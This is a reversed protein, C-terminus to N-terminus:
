VMNIEVNLESKFCVYKIHNYRYELDSCDISM